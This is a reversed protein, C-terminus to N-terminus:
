QYLWYLWRYIHSVWRYFGPLRRYFRSVWQYFTLVWRYPNAGFLVAPYLSAEWGNSARPPLTGQWISVMCFAQFLLFFYNVNKQFNFIISNCDALSFQAWYLKYLELPSYSVTIDDNRPGDPKRCVQCRLTTRSVKAMITFPYSSFSEFVKVM